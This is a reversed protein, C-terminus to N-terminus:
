YMCKEREGGGHKGNKENRGVKRESAKGLRKSSKKLGKVLKNFASPGEWDESGGSHDNLKRKVM